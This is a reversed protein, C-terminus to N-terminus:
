KQQQNSNCSRLWYNSWGQTNFGEFPFYRPGIYFGGRTMTDGGNQNCHMTSKHSTGSWPDVSNYTENTLIKATNIPQSWEGTVELLREFGRDAVVCNGDSDCEVFHGSTECEPSEPDLLADLRVHNAQGKLVPAGTQCFMWRWWERYGGEDFFRIFWYNIEIGTNHVVGDLDYEEWVWMAACRHSIPSQVCVDAAAGNGFSRSHDRFVSAPRMAPRGIKKWKGPDDFIVAGGGLAAASDIPGWLYNDTDVNIIGSPDDLGLDINWDVIQGNADTSFWFENVIAYGDANPLTAPGASFKMSELRVAGLWFYNDYPLNACNGEAHAISCDVTFRGTVRDTTSFVGPEGGVEEFNNGRYVYTASDAEAANVFFGNVCVASCVFLLTKRSLFKM